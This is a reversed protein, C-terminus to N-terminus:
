ESFINAHAAAETWAAIPTSFDRGAIADVLMPGSGSVFEAFASEAEAPTRVTRAPVGLSRAVGAWDNERLLTFAAPGPGSKRARLYVNGLAANNIVVFLIDLNYRAATALEFGNQLMCGDGTVVAIKTGPLACAVGTAAAIAWGMPGIGTASFFRRPALVPFHHGAFARHAGSDVLLAADRPLAERLARVIRAPHLPAEDTERTEPDYYRPGTLFSEAWARRSEQTLALRASAASSGLLRRLATRTDGVIMRAVPFNKGLAGARRDIQIVGHRPQLRADWGLTDRQNLSSGLVLLTDLKSDTLCAEAPPNGAYGFVGLSLPHDEPLIGKARYTSAVPISFKEAVERLEPWAESEMAGWGALIAVNASLALDHEIWASFGEDDLVRPQTPGALWGDHWEPIEAKQVDVPLALHVPRRWDSYMARFADRLFQPLAGPTPVEHSFGTLADFMRLDDTGLPSADQFYGRGELATAAEGSIMLMPVGDASAAGVAGAANFIGPGGITLVAGFTGSARAYGDAAYAAGAENAALIGRVDGGAALPELFPDVLGGVFMFVHDAGGDKIAKLVVDTGRM